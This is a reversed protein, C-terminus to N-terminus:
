LLKGVTDSAQVKRTGQVSEQGRYEQARCRPLAGSGNRDRGDSRLPCASERWEDQCLAEGARASPHLHREIELELHKISRDQADILTLLERLLFRHHERIEATLAAAIQEQTAHVSPHVRRALRVPDSEGACLADL